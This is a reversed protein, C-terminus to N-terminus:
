PYDQNGWDNTGDQVDQLDQTNAQKETFKHEGLKLIDLTLRAPLRLGLSQRTSRTTGSTEGDHCPPAGPTSSLALAEGCSPLELM